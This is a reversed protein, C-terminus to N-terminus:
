RRVFFDLFIYWSYIVLKPIHRVKLVSRTLSKRKDKNDCFQDLFHDREAKIVNYMARFTRDRKMRNWIWRYRLQRKYYEMLWRHENIKKRLARAMDCREGLIYRHILLAAEKGSIVSGKIGDAAFAGCYGAADGILLTHKASTKKLAGAIPIFSGFRYIPKTVDAPTSVIGKERLTQMFAELLRKADGRDKKLKALGVRFAPKGQEVTPSLWGGYGLSFEGFWFHYITEAPNPGLTVEGEWVEEYGFLYADNQQLGPIAGAVSSHGGDAGVLFKASVVEEIGGNKLVIEVGDERDTARYFAVGTRITVNQPLTDALASVLAKTDTQYIWYDDTKSVFYDNYDPAVVCISSIPNTIYADIDFFSAFEERTHSTILGTSEVSSGATPKADVVLVRYEKPLHHALTLGSFSAGIITIDYHEKM